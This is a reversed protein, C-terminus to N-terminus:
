HTNHKNDAYYAARREKRPKKAARYADLDDFERGPFMDKNAWKGNVKEASKVPIEIRRTSTRRPWPEHITIIIHIRRTALARSPRAVDAARGRPAFLTFFGNM